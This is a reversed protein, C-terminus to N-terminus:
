LIDTGLTITVLTRLAMLHSEFHSLTTLRTFRTPPRGTLTLREEKYLNIDERTYQKPTGLPASVVSTRSEWVEEGPDKVPHLVSASASSQLDLTRLNM